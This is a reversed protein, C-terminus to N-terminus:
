ETVFASDLEDRVAMFSKASERVNFICGNGEVADRATLQCRCEM